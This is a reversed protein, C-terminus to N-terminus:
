CDELLKAGHRISSSKKAETLEKEVRSDGLEWDGMMLEDSVKELASDEDDAEAIVRRYATISILYTKM